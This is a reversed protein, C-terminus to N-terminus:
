GGEVIPGFTAQWRNREGVTELLPYSRLPSQPYTVGGGASAVPPGLFEDSPFVLASNAAAPDHLRRAVISRADPVPSILRVWNAILAAIEPRYVWDMLDIADVPHHTGRPIVMSDTWLMVGEDPIVFKMEPHGLRNAQHVDGSWAQSIWTQGTRLAALYSQDYYGRVLGRRRQDTLLAAAETWTEDVAAAPDRGLALLAVSGLDLLDRMMGVRGVFAGDFLDKVSTPERGLAEVAEPRFALGTVGSQWAVSYLNGQDWPPDRVLPAANQAFTPLRSHDLPILWDREMLQLLEPGNRIVMLDYGTPSGAELAPEITSLFTANDRIPTVYEVRIANQNTFRQLSSPSGKTRGDIHYPRNAFRVVGTKHRTAWWADWDFFRYNTSPAGDCAALAAALGGLASARLLERRTLGRAAV